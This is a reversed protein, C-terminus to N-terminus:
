TPNFIRPFTGLGSFAQSFVEIWRKAFSRYQMARPTLVTIEGAGGVKLFAMLQASDLAISWVPM